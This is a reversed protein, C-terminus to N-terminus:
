SALYYRDRIIRIKSIRPSRNWGVNNDPQITSSQQYPGIVRKPLNPPRVNTLRCQPHDGRSVLFTFNMVPPFFNIFFHFKSSDSYLIQTRRAFPSGEYYRRLIENCLDEDSIGFLFSFTTALFSSHNTKTNPLVGSSICMCVLVGSCSCIFFICLPLHQLLIRLKINNRGHM